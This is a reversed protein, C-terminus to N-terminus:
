RLPIDLKDYIQSFLDADYKSIFELNHDQCDRQVEESTDSSLILTPVEHSLGQQRLGEIAEVGNFEGLHYDIIVGDISENQLLPAVESANSFAKTEVGESSLIDEFIQCILPDDDIVLYMKINRCEAVRNPITQIANFEM